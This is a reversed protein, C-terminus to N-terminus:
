SDKLHINQLGQSNRIYMNMRHHRIHQKCWCSRHLIQIGRMHLEWLHMRCCYSRHKSCNCQLVRLLQYRLRNSSHRYAKCISCRIPSRMSRFLLLNRCSDSSRFRARQM